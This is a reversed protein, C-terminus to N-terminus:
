EKDAKSQIYTDLFKQEKKDLSVTSLMDPRRDFTIEIAREKRWKAIEAHNGSLLVTPVERNM